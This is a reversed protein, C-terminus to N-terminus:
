SDPRLRVIVDIRAVATGDPADPLGAVSMASGDIDELWGDEEHFFHHHISVNTDFYTRAPDIVVQRLLGAETFRNLTNCVTARAVKIGGRVAEEHLAEATIHRDHGAFLLDGLSLHQRTPRLGVARLHDRVPNNQQEQVM